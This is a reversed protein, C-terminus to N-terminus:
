ERGGMLGGHQLKRSEKLKRRKLDTDDIRSVPFVNFGSMKTKRVVFFVQASLTSGCDAITVDSNTQFRIKVMLFEANCGRDM